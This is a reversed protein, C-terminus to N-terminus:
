QNAGPAQLVSQLAAGATTAGAWRRACSAPDRKQRRPAGMARPRRLSQLPGQVCPAAFAADGTSVTSFTRPPPPPAAVATGEVAGRRREVQQTSRSGVSSPTPFLSDAFTEMKLTCTFKDLRRQFDAVVCRYWRDDDFLMEAYNGM